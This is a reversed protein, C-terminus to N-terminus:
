SSVSRFEGLEGKLSQRIRIKDELWMEVALSGRVEFRGFTLPENKPSPLSVVRPSMAATACMPTTQPSIYPM